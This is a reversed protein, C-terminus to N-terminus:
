KVTNVPIVDMHGFSEISEPLEVTTSCWHQQCTPVYVSQERSMTSHLHVEM